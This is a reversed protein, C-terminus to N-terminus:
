EGVRADVYPCDIFVECFSTLYGLVCVGIVIKVYLTMWRVREVLMRFFVLFSFKVSYLATWTLPSAGDWTKEYWVANAVVFSPVKVAAPDLDMAEGWYLTPLLNFTLVTAAILCICGCILFADDLSLRRHLMLKVILRSLTTTMAM